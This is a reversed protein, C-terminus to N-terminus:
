QAALAAAAQEFAPRIKDGDKGPYGNHQVMYITILRKQPDIWLHTSYAGAHGSPGSMPGSGPDPRSAFWGLGYNVEHEGPKNLHATQTATMRRVSAESLYRKDAFVGGNLIMRCFLSVDTATSFLGGAPSATRRADTLPYSLQSIRTEVLGTKSVDPQYSKALRRAQDANLRFGTDVMGLPQFLRRRMFEEYALGSVTEIIRGAINIGANSYEYHTGPPTQLPTLAYSFVAERLSLLDNKREADRVLKALEEPTASRAAPPDYRREVKTSFPLGSTHSLVEKVTIPHEPQRLLVHNADQEVVLMQGHFEPLYKEVPDDLSVKGEDVLMMLATATMPKTMSAIWFVANTRMPQAAAIDAYGVAELSLVADPSAVLTVAGALVHRDVYPQLVQAIGAPTQALAAPIAGLLLAALLVPSSRFRMTQMSRFYPSDPPFALKNSCSRRSNM